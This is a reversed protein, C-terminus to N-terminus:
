EKEISRVLEKGCKACYKASVMNAVGCRMCLMARGGLPSEILLVSHCSICTWPSRLWCVVYFTPGVALWVKLFWSCFIVLYVFTTQPAAREGLIVIKVFGVVALLMVVLSASWGIVNASVRKRRQVDCQCKPCFM